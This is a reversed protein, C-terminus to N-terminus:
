FEDSLFRVNVQTSASINGGTTTLCSITFTTKDNINSVATTNTGPTIPAYTATFTPGAPVASITCSAAETASWKLDTTKNDRALSPEAVITATPTIVEVSVPLANATGVANTCSLSYPIIGVSGPTVVANSNTGGATFGGGTCSTAGTSTWTLTSTNGLSIRTPSATFSTIIPPNPGETTDASSSCGPDAPYDTLGDSDEDVGNSCMPLTSNNCTFATGSAPGYSGDSNRGHVWYNYATGPTTAYVISTGAYSDPNPTCTNADWGAQMWGSPCSGVKSARVYYTTVGAPAGWSLTASTGTPNCTAIPNTPATPLVSVQTWASCNNAESSEVVAGNTYPPMDGCSRLYWLGASPFAYTTAISATGGSLLDVNSVPVTAYVTSHDADNDIEFISSFGNATPNNTPTTPTTPTGSVTITVSKTNSSGEYTAGNYSGLGSCTLSYTKSASPSVSISGSTAGFQDYTVGDWVARPVVFDSSTCELANTATWSLTSSQGSTISTPSGSFTLAVPPVDQFTVVNAQICFGFMMQTYTCNDQGEAVDPRVFASAVGVIIFLLLTSATRTFLKKM